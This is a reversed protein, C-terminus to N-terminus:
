LNSLHDIFAELPAVTVGKGGPYLERVPAIIWVERLALDRVANWFGRNLSPSTSVKCEVAIQRKGKELVLDLESGSATRYFFANWNSLLSLINEIVFGEWSAGNEVPM